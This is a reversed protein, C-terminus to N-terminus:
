QNYQTKLFLKDAEEKSNNSKKKGECMYYASDILALLEMSFEATYLVLWIQPRVEISTLAIEATSHNDTVVIKEAFICFVEKQNTINLIYKDRM